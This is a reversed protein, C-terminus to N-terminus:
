ADEVLDARNIAGLKGVRGVPGGVISARELHHPFHNKKARITATAPPSVLRAFIRPRDQVNFTSDKHDKKM